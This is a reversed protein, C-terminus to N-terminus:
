RKPLSIYCWVPYHDSAEITNDVTCHHVDLNKSTFIHDIRVYLRDRNYSVGLGNGSEVFADNLEDHLVRHAYSIPTDNFDGCVIMYKDASSKVKELVMDVQGARVVTAQAMKKLLKSVRSFVKDGDPADIMDQLSDVDSKLIKNSELHNNIVLLTDNGVKIRYAVSGNRNSKYKLPTVSLLPFRSYIGLGNLGKGLPHYHKYPYNRLAYDIDKKKLKNGWIYEQLCIIDADSAQLYALVENAKEKTHAEKLGFAQTNYTLMKIAHESPVGNDWGNIPFYARLANWCFLFALLPLLAYKWNFFLWFVLFILNLLAFIPFFLGMSAWISHNLPNLYPSFASLLLLLVVVGNVGLLIFGLLKGIHGMNNGVPM